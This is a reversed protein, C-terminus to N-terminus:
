QVFHRNKNVVTPQLTETVSLDPEGYSVHQLASGKPLFAHLSLPLVQFRLKSDGMERNRRHVATKSSEYCEAWFVNMPEMLQSDLAAQYADQLPKVQLV